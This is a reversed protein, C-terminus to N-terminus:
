SVGSITTKADQEIRDVRQILAELGSDNIFNNRLSKRIETNLGQTEPTSLSTKLKPPWFAEAFERVVRQQENFTRRLLRLEDRTDRALSISKAAQKIAERIKTSSSPDM